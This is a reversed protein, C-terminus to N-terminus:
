ALASLRYSAMRYDRTIINLEMLQCGRDCSLRLQISELGM